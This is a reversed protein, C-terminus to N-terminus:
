SHSRFRASAEDDTCGCVNIGMSFTVDVRHDNEQDGEPFVQARFSGSLEGDTTLQAVLVRLDDGALSNSATPPLLYWGSGQNDDVVFSNGNEFADDWSGALLSVNVEGDASSAPGDLGITIWSDYALIPLLGLAPAIASSPTAGGFIPEQYFSTTTALSLPFENDGVIASVGDTSAVTTLYVRYTTMGALTGENSRLPGFGRRVLVSSAVDDNPVFCLRPDM